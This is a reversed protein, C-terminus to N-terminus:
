RSNSGRRNKRKLTRPQNGTRKRKISIPRKNSVTKRLIEVIIKQQENGQSGNFNPAGQFGPSINIGMNTGRTRSTLGSLMTKKIATMDFPHPSMESRQKRGNQTSIKVKQKQKEKEPGRDKNLPGPNCAEQQLGNEVANPYKAILSGKIISVFIMMRHIAIDGPVKM